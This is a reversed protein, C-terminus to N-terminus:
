SHIYRLIRTLRLEILKHLKVRKSPNSMPNSGQFKVEEPQAVLRLVLLSPPLKPFPTKPANTSSALTSGNQMAGEREREKEKIERM